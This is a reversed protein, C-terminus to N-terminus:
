STWTTAGLIDNARLSAFCASIGVEVSGQQAPFTRIEM